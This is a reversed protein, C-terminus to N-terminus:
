TSRDRPGPQLVLVTQGQEAREFPLVHWGALGAVSAILDPSTAVNRVKRWREPLDDRASDLFARQGWPSQIPLCTFVFRGNPRVIRRADALYRFTDEHELHTFVSFACIMDFSEARFEFHAETQVAWRVRCGAGTSGFAARAREIMTPAVDVGTYSGSVLYPIAFKALRGIGCGFDLLDSDPGLGNQRLIELEGRGVADFDGDGVADSGAHARAHAEYLTQYDFRPARLRAGRGCPTIRRAVSRLVSRLRDAM